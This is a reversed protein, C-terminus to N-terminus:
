REVASWLQAEFEDKLTHIYTRSLHNDDMYVYVNGIVGPCYGDPCIFPTLDMSRVGPDAELALLPSEIALKESVPPLCRPDAAGYRQVCEPMLFTFRPNDRMNVVRIGAETLPRAAEAYTLVPLEPGDAQARSGVTFVWDPRLQLLYTTLDRSFQVCEPTSFENPLSFRCGPQIIVLLRWRERVALDHLLPNWQNTHSDGFM